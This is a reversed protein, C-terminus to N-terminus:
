IYIPRSTFIPSCRLYLRMTQRRRRRKSM